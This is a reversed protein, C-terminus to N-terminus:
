CTYQRNNVRRLAERYDDAGSTSRAKPDLETYRELYKWALFWCGSDKAYEGAFLWTQPNHPQRRVAALYEGFASQRKGRADAALAKAWYPDVLLPDLSRARNALTVARAPAASYADNAYRRALWPSFLVGALLLAAGLAPLLAFPAV